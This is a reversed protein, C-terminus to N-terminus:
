VIEAIETDYVNLYDKNQMTLSRHSNSCNTELNKPDSNERDGDKHHVELM